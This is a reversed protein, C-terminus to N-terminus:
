HLRSANRGEVKEHTDFVFDEFFYLLEVACEIRLGRLNEFFLEFVM